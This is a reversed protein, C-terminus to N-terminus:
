MQDLRKLGRKVALENQSTREYEAKEAATAERLFRYPIMMYGGFLPPADAPYCAAVKPTAMDDVFVLQGAAYQGRM